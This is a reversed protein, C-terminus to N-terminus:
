SAGATGLVAAVAPRQPPFDSCAAVRTGLSFRPPGNPRALQPTPQAAFSIVLHHGSIM